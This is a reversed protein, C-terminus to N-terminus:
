SNQMLLKDLLVVLKKCSHYNEAITEKHLKLRDLVTSRLTRSIIGGELAFEVLTDYLSEPTHLRLLNKLTDRYIRLAHLEKKSVMERGNLVSKVFKNAYTAINHSFSRELDIAYYHDTERDYFFNSKHRDTNAIFTDLAVIKCLDEHRSMSRVIEATM